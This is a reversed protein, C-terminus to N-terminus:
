VIAGSPESMCSTAPTLGSPAMAHFGTPYRPEQAHDARGVPEAARLSAVFVPDSRAADLLVDREDLASVSM